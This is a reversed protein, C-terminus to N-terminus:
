VNPEHAQVEAIVEGKLDYKILTGDTASAILASNNLYWSIKTLHKNKGAKNKAQFRIEATLKSMETSKEPDQAANLLTELKYISVQSGEEFVFSEELFM